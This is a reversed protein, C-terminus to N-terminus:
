ALYDLWKGIELSVPTYGVKKDGGLKIEGAIIYRRSQEDLNNATGSFICAMEM